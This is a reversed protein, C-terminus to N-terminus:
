KILGLLNNEDKYVTKINQFQLLSKVFSPNGKRTERAIKGSIFLVPFATILLGVWGFIVFSLIIVVISILAGVPSLGNFYIKKNVLKTTKYKM